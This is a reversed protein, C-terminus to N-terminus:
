KRRLWQWPFVRDTFVKAQVGVLSFWSIKVAETAPTDAPSINNQRCHESYRILWDRFHKAKWVVEYDPDEKCKSIARMLFAKSISRVAIGDYHTASRVRFGLTVGDACGLVVYHM